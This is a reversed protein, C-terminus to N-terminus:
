ARYGDGLNFPVQMGNVLGGGVLTSPDVRARPKSAPRRYNKNRVRQRSSAGAAEDSLGGDDDGQSPPREPPLAPMPQKAKLRELLKAARNETTFEIQDLTTTPPPRQSFTDANFSARKLGGPSLAGFDPPAPNPKGFGEAPQASPLAAPPAQSAWRLASTPRPPAQSLEGFEIDSGFEPLEEERPYNTAVEPPSTGLPNRGWPRRFDATPVDDFKKVLGPSRSRTEEDLPPSAYPSPGNRGSLGYGGQAMADEYDKERGPLPSEEGFKFQSGFNALSREGTAGSDAGQRMPMLNGVYGGFESLADAAAKFASPANGPPGGQTGQWPEPPRQGDRPPQM